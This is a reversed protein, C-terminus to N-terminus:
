SGNAALKEAYRSAFGYYAGGASGAAIRIESPPPPEVFVFAIAFGVASLVLSLGFYKQM